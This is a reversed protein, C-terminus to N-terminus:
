DIPVISYCVYFFTTIGKIFQMVNPHFERNKIKTAGFCLLLLLRIFKGDHSRGKYQKETSWKLLQALAEPSIVLLKKGDADIEYRRAGNQLLMMHTHFQIHRWKIVIRQISCLCISVLTSFFKNGSTPDNNKADFHMPAAISGDWAIECEDDSGFFDHHEHQITTEVFLDVLENEINEENVPELIENKVMLLPDIGFNEAIAEIEIEPETGDLRNLEDIGIEVMPFIAESQLAEDNQAARFEQDTEVADVQQAHGNNGPQIINPLPQERFRAANYIPVDAYRQRLM